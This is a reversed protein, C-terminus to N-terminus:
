PWDEDLGGKPMDKNAREELRRVAELVATKTFLNKGGLKFPMPLVGLRAYRMVSRKHPLQLFQAVQDANMIEPFLHENGTPRISGDDHEDDREDM